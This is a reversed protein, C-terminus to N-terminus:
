PFNLNMGAPVHKKFQNHETSCIVDTYIMYTYIQVLSYASLNIYSYKCFVTKIILIWMKVHVRTSCEKTIPLLPLRPCSCFTHHQGWKPHRHLSRLRSVSWTLSVSTPLLWGMGDFFTLVAHEWDCWAVEPPPGWGSWLRKTECRRGVLTWKLVNYVSIYM